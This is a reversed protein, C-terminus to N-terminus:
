EAEPLALDEPKLAYGHGRPTGTREFNVIECNDSDSKELVCSIDFEVSTRDNIDLECFPYWYYGGCVERLIFVGHKWYRSSDRNYIEAYIKM